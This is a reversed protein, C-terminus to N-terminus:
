SPRGTQQEVLYQKHYATMGERIDNLIVDCNEPGAAVLLRGALEAIVILLANPLQPEPMVKAISTIVMDSLLHSLTVANPAQKNM